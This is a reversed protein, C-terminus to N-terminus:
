RSCEPSLYVDRFVPEEMDLISLYDYAAQPYKSQYEALAERILELQGSDWRALLCPLVEVTDALDHIQQCRGSLALNRMEVISRQLIIALKYLVTDDVISM